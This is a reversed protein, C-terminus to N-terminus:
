KKNLAIPEYWDRPFNAKDRSPINFPPKLSGKFYQDVLSQWYLDPDKKGQEQAVWDFWKKGNKVHHIEEDHIIQLLSASVEDGNRKMGKIMTPTVDLGRAELVMPVIALRAAFDHATDLASEWLGDHAPLAGYHAGMERLRDDLMLFHKSEEYAIQLWDTFFDDPMRTEQYIGFRAIMDWALDIANLEIHALAHLLSIRNQISHGATRRPMDKPHLLEPKQPRGPREIHINKYVPGVFGEHFAHYLNHSIQAKLRAHKTHLVTHAALTLNQEDSM